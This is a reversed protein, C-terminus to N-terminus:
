GGDRAQIGDVRREVRYESMARVRRQRLGFRQELELRMLRPPWIQSNRISRM